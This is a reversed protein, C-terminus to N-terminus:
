SYFKKILSCIYEVDEDKLHPHCPLSLIEKSVKETVPLDGEKFGYNEAAKQLHCPIPYHIGVDVGNKRLFEVLKDREPVRIVFYHYVHKVDEKTKQFQCPLGSLLRRYIEAIERRRTNWRDLKKLKLNLIAAQIEDLRANFGPNISAYSSIQGHNRLLKLNEYIEDSDTTIGGAEGLAGLNKTYYFSFASVDGLSGVKKGRYEAGHAQASDEVIYFGHIKKLEYIPEMDCVNGFLHVPIVAKTKSTIKKEVDSPSICLTDEEIDAFVPEAGVMWVAEFTAIFTFSPLIVEDGKGIGLARLALHLAETGSSLGVCYKVGCYEAFDREFKQVNEGLFLWMKQFIKEWEKFLEEKIELYPSILDVLKIKKM